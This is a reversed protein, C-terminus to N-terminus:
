KGIRRLIMAGAVWAGLALLGAGVLLYPLYNETPEGYPAVAVLLKGDPDYVRVEPKLLRLLPNPPATSPALPDDVVVAPSVQSRVEVRGISSRGLANLAALADGGAAARAVDPLARSLPAGLLEDLVGM